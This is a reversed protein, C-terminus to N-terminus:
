VHLSMLRSISSVACAGDVSWGLWRCFTFDFISILITVVLFRIGSEDRLFSSLLYLFPDFTYSIFSWVDRSLASSISLELIMTIIFFYSFDFTTYHIHNQQRTVNYEPRTERRETSSQDLKKEREKIEVRCSTIVIKNEYGKQENNVM